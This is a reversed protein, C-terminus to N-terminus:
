IKRERIPRYTKDDVVIDVREGDEIVLRERTNKVLNVCEIQNQDIWASQCIIKADLSLKAIPMLEEKISKSQNKCFDIKEGLKQLQELTHSYQEIANLVYGQTKLGRKSNKLAIAKFREIAPSIRKIRSLEKQYIKILREIFNSYQQYRKQIEEIQKRYEYFSSSDIQFDNKGGLMEQIEVRSCLSIRNNAYLKKIVIEKCYIEGGVSDELEGSQCEIRGGECNKIKVKNAILTGKHKTIEAYDAYIDSKQHTSGSIICEKARLVVGQDISGNINITQAEVVIGAGVADQDVSPAKINLEFGCEIGGLLNGMNRHNIEDLNFDKILILGSSNLGAYGDKLAKYTVYELNEETSFDEDLSGFQIAIPERKEVKILEGLLDRGDRGNQGKILRGIEVGEKAAYSSNELEEGSKLKWDEELIFFFHMDIVPSFFESQELCIRRTQGVGSQYTKLKNELAKADCELSFHKFIIGKLAKYANISQHLAELRTFLESYEDEKCILFLRSKHLDLEFCFRKQEEQHAFIQLDYSQEIEFIEEEYMQSDFFEESEEPSLERKPGKRETISTYVQLVQFSLFKVEKQFLISAKELEHSVDICKEVKIESMKREEEILM